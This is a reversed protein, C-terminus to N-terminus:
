IIKKNWEQLLVRVQKLTQTFDCDAQKKFIAFLMKLLLIYKQEPLTTLLVYFYTSVVDM